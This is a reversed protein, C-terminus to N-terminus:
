EARVSHAASGGFAVQVPFLWMGAESGVVIDANGDGDMDNVTPSSLVKSNSNGPPRCCWVGAVPGTKAGGSDLHERGNAYLADDCGM